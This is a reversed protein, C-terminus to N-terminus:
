LHLSASQHLSTCAHLLFGVKIWSQRRVSVRWHAPSPWNVGPCDAAESTIWYLNIRAHHFGNRTVM